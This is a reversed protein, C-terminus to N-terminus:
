KNKRANMRCEANQARREASERNRLAAQMLQLKQAAREQKAYEHALARASKVRRVEERVWLVTAVVSLALSAATMAWIGM